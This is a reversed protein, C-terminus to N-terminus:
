RGGSIHLTLRGNDPQSPDNELQSIELPGFTLVGTQLVQKAEDNSMDFQRRLTTVAVSEVGPVAQALAILESTFLPQGFTLNDPHFFGRRRDPLIRNSFIELLEAQVQGRVYSPLVCITLELILPVYEAEEVVLDHGIRRFNELERRVTQLLPATPGINALPDVTVQAEYWSGNWRLTGAARQVNTNVTALQAYDEARVARQLQQRFMHPALLKAETMPEPDIGGVAPLPNRLQDIHETTLLCDKSASYRLVMHAIKEAGVNGEVGNGVRYYMRRERHAPFAKGLEGDGFRLHGRRQSDMEVVFHRDEPGSSLLDFRPVWCEESPEAAAILCPARRSQASSEPTPAGAKPSKGGDPEPDDPTSEQEILCVMPIARHPDQQLLVSAPLANVAPMDFLLPESHTIHADSLQNPPCDMAAGQDATDDSESRGHDVLIINGRAVSVNEAKESKICFPFPLADQRHWEIEWLPLPPVALDDEIPEVNTLRVFHRHGPDHDAPNGSQPGKIEEFLLVDGAKLRITGNDQQKKNSSDDESTSAEFPLCLTARTAGVPLCCESDDWTYFWIENHDAYLPIPNCSLPEFTDYSGAAINNLQSETLAPKNALAPHQTIFFVDDPHLCESTGESLKVHVWARANCGEHLAYDMLRAHRRVSIRRRATELYAETAVADQYYSLYDGVYALIEILTIGLDPAYRERWEPMIVALRDRILQLFSVYDKALYNIEPEARQPLPHDDPPKPDVETVTDVNFTFDLYYFRQDFGEFREYDDFPLDGSASSNENVIALRYTSSDGVCNLELTLINKKGHKDHPKIETVQLGRVRHGGFIRVNAPSLADLDIDNLLHVTLKAAARPSEGPQGKARSTEVEIFDIGNVTDINRVRRRRKEDTCHTPLSM